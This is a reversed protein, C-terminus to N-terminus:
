MHKAKWCYLNCNECFFVRLYQYRIDDIECKVDFVDIESRMKCTFDSRIECSDVYDMLTFFGLCVRVLVLLFYVFRILLFVSKHPPFCRGSKIVGNFVRGNRHYWFERRM